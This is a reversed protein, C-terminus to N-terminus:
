LSFDYRLGVNAGYVRADSKQYYVMWGGVLRLDPLSEFFARLPIRADMGYSISGLAEGSDGFESRSYGVPFALELMEFVTSTPVLYAGYFTDTTVEGEDEDAQDLGYHLEFGVAELVRMGARLRLMTSDFENAPASPPVSLSVTTNVHDVGFSLAWPEAPAEEASTEEASAEEAPAEEAAAAEEAPVEEVAEDAVPEDPEDQAFAPVALTLAVLAIWSKNMVNRRGSAGDAAARLIIRSKEPTHWGGTNM